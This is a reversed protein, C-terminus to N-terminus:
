ATAGGRVDSVAETHEVGAARMLDVATSRVQGVIHLASMNGTERLVANAEEAARLATRRATEVDDHELARAAEALLRLSLALRQPTADGLALARGVGRAVVRVNNVALELAAVTEAYRAVRGRDRRQRLTLRASDRASALADRPVTLSISRALALAEEATEEDRQELADALTDLALALRELVPEVTRRVVHAPDVPLILTAVALAVTGGVLADLFRALSIGDEPVQITSVLVASTAAQSVLLPGGGLLLAAGMALATVVGIQWTGTGIVFVLLDAVLIGVAVGFAMEVARRRRQGLTLGLTIVAAVPAFFPRPHGLVETAALWALAAAVSTHLIPRASVLISERRREIGARSRAAAEARLEEGSMRPGRLREAM